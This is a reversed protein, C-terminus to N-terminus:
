KASKAQHLLDTRVYRLYNRVILLGDERVFNAM